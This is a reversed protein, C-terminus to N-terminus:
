TSDTKPLKFTKLLAFHPHNADIQFVHAETPPDYGLLFMTEPSAIIISNAPLTRILAQCGYSYDDLSRYNTIDILHGSPMLIMNKNMIKAVVEPSGVVATYYDPELDLASAMDFHRRGTGCIILSKTLPLYQRLKSMESKGSSTLGCNPVNDFVPGHVILFISKGEM